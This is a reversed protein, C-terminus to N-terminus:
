MKLRSITNVGILITGLGQEKIGDFYKEKLYGDFYKEKLHVDCYRSPNGYWVNFLIDNETCKSLWDVSMGPIEFHCNKEMIDKPFSIRDKYIVFNKHLFWANPSTALEALVADDYIDEGVLQDGKKFILSSCQGWNFELSTLAVYVSDFQMVKRVGTNIVKGMGMLSQKEGKDELTLIVRCDEKPISYILLIGKVKKLNQTVQLDLDSATIM